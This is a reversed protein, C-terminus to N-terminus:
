AAQRVSRVGTAVATGALLLLGGFAVLSGISGSYLLQARVFIFVTKDWVVDLLLGGCILLGSIILLSKIWGPRDSSTGLASPSPSESM